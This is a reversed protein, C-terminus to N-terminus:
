QQIQQHYFKLMFRQFPKIKCNLDVVVNMINCIQQVKIVAQSPKRQVFMDLVGQFFWAFNILNM